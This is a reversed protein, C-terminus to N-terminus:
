FDIVGSCSTAGSPLECCMYYDTTSTEQYQVDADGDSESVVLRLNTGLILVSGDATVGSPVVGNFAEFTAALTDGTADSATYCLASARVALDNGDQDKFQMAVRIYNSPTESGVTFGISALAGESRDTADGVADSVDSDSFAITLKKRQNSSLAASAVSGLFLCALAALVIKKM